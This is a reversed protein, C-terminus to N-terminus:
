RREKRPHDSRAPASGPFRRLRLSNALVLVSSLTMAAAAILPNLLGAAALPIAAVNDGLAWGLNRRITMFTARALRIADPVIQLDDRLLIMDAAGIAVDTGSGVALGLDAGALAPGDNVGDGVMAVCRGAARLGAIFEAKQAPMVGAAIEDIGAAAAVARAVAESDGTLLVPRLGLPSAGGGRAGSLAPDYRRGRHCGQGVRGLRGASGYPRGAGLRRVPREAGRPHGHGPRPVAARPGVTVARGVVAGQAGLGARARFRHPQPLAGGAGAELRATTIAAAAPHESAQEVAGALRLLEARSTGAGGLVDIVTMQGTTITGTKDLLVTDVL